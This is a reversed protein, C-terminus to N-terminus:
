IRCFGYKKIIEAWKKHNYAMADSVNIDNPDADKDYEKFGNDGWNKIQNALDHAVLHSKGVFGTKYGAKQLLRPLNEKDIELETNNEVRTMNGYPHQKMFVPGESRGAYRGTLTTYRSPACVSSSVYARTFIMGNKALDDIIPTVVQSDGNFGFPRSQNKRDSEKLVISSQDDTMIFIINPKKTNQAISKHSSFLVLFFIAAITKYNNFIM